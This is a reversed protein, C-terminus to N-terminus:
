YIGIYFHCGVTPLKTSYPTPYSSAAYQAFSWRLDAKAIRTKGFVSTDTKIVHHGNM